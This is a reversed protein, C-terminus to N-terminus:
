DENGLLYYLAVLVSLTGVVMQVNIGFAAWKLLPEMQVPLMHSLGGVLLLMWGATAWRGSCTCGCKECKNALIIKKKREEKAM